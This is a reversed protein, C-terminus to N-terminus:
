KHRKSFSHHLRPLVLYFQLDRRVCLLTPHLINVPGAGHSMIELQLPTPYARRVKSPERAVTKLNNKTRTRCAQWDVRQGSETSVGTSNSRAIRLEGYKRRCNEKKKANRGGTQNTHNHYPVCFDANHGPTTARLTDSLSVRSFRRPCIPKYTFCPHRSGLCVTSPGYM